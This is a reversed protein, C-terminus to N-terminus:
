QLLIDTQQTRLHAHPSFLYHSSSSSAAIIKKKQTIYHEDIYIIEISDDSWGDDTDLNAFFDVDDGVSLTLKGITFPIREIPVFEEDSSSTSAHRDILPHSSHVPSPVHSVIDATRTGVFTTTTTPLPPPPSASSFPLFSPSYHECLNPSPFLLSPRQSPFIQMRSTSAM